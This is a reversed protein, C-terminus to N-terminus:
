SYILAKVGEFCNPDALYFNHEEVRVYNWMDKYLCASITGEHIFCVLWSTGPARYCSYDDDVCYHHSLSVGISAFVACIADNLV